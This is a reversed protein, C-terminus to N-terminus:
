SQGSINPVIQPIPGRGEVDRGTVAAKSLPTRSGAKEFEINM